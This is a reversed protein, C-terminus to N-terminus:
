RVAKRAPPKMVREIPTGKRGGRAMTCTKDELLTGPCQVCQTGQGATSNDFCYKVGGDPSLTTTCESGRATCGAFVAGQKTAAAPGTLAATALVLTAAMISVTAKRM